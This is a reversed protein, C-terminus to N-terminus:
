GVAAIEMGSGGRGLSGSAGPASVFGTVCAVQWILLIALPVIWQTLGDARPIRFSRSRAQSLSEALSM